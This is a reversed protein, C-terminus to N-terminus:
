QSAVFKTIIIRVSCYILTQLYVYLRNVWKLGVNSKMYFGTMQNAISDVPFFTSFLIFVNQVLYSCKSASFRCFILVSVRMLHKSRRIFFFFVDNNSSNIKVTINVKSSKNSHCRGAPM